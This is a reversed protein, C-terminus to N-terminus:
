SWERAEMHAHILVCDEGSVDWALLGAIVENGLADIDSERGSSALHEREIFLLDYQHFLYLVFRDSPGLPALSRRPRIAMVLEDRFLIVGM